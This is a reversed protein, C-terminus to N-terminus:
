HGHCDDGCLAQEDHSPISPQSTPTVIWVQQNDTNETVRIQLTADTYIVTGTNPATAAGQSNDAGDVSEIRPSIHATCSADCLEEVGGTAVSHSPPAVVRDADSEMPMIHQTTCGGGCLAEHGLMSPVVVRDADSEMPMIQQTTCGGGCLAEHGLMSPVVVRNADSGMPLVMFVGNATAFAAHVSGEADNIQVYRVGDRRFVYVRWLASTSRNAVHPMAQGLESASPAAHTVSTIGLSVLL